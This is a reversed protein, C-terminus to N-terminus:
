GSATSCSRKGKIGTIASSKLLVLCFMIRLTATSTSIAKSAQAVIWCFVSAFREKGLPLGSLLEEHSWDFGAKIPPQPKIRPPNVQDDVTKPEAALQILQGLRSIRISPCPMCCM